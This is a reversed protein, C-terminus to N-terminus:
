QDQWHLVSVQDGTVEITGSVNGSTVTAIRTAAGVTLDAESIYQVGGVTAQCAVVVTGEGTTGLDAGWATPTVTAPGSVVSWACDTVAGEAGSAATYAATLPQDSGEPISGSAPYVSLSAGSQSPQNTVFVVKAQNSKVATTAGSSAAKFAAVSVGTTGPSSGEVVGPAVWTVSGGSLGTDTWELTTDTDPVANGAQDAATALIAVPVGTETPAPATVTMAAVPDDLAMSASTSAGNVSDPTTVTAPGSGSNLVAAAGDAQLVHAGWWVAAHQGAQSTTLVGVSKARQLAVYAPTAAVTTILGLIVIVALVGIGAFGRVM